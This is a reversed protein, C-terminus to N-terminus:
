YFYKIPVLNAQSRIQVFLLESSWLTNKEKNKVKKGNKKKKLYFYM